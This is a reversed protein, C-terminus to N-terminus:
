IVEVKNNPIDVIYCYDGIYIKNYMHTATSIITTKLGNTNCKYYIYTSFAQCNGGKEKIFRYDNQGETYKFASVEMIIDRFIESEDGFKTRVFINPAKKIITYNLKGIKHHNYSLIFPLSSKDIQPNFTISYNHIIYLSLM